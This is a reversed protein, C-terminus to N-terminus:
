IAFPFQFTRETRSGSFHLSIPFSPSIRKPPGRVLFFKPFIFHSFLSTLFESIKGLFHLFKETTRSCLCFKDLPGRTPFPQSGSTYVILENLQAPLCRCAPLYLPLCISPVAATTGRQNFNQKHISYWIVGWVRFCSLKFVFGTFAEEEFSWM